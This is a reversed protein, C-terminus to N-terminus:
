AKGVSILIFNKESNHHSPYFSMVLDGWLFTRECVCVIVCYCLLSFSHSGQLEWKGLLHAAEGQAQAKGHAM